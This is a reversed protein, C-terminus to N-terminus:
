GRSTLREHDEWYFSGDVSSSAPYFVILLTIRFPSYISPMITGKLWPPSCLNVFATPSGQPIGQRIARRKKMLLPPPGWRRLSPNPEYHLTRRLTQDKPHGKWPRNGQRRRRAKRPPWGLFFLFFFFMLGLSDVWPFVHLHPPTGLLIQTGQFVNCSCIHDFGSYFYPDCCKAHSALTLLAHLLAHSSYVLADVLFFCTM